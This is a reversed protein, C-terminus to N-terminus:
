TIWAMCGVRESKSSIQCASLLKEQDFLVLNKSFLVVMALTVLMQLKAIKMCHLLM